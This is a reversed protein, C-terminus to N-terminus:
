REMEENVPPMGGGGGDGGGGGANNDSKKVLMRVLREYSMTQLVITGPGTLKTNFCGEGGCLCTLFGGVRQVDYEIGDTFGVVSDSDVILVEGPGLDKKILTGAANVFATGSGSVNQILPPMGGCCCAAANKAPLFKPMVKVTEDGAMFAGRKLNVSGGPINSLDFPVVIAFPMNPALGIYGLEGSTNKLRAKALGEGSFLRMGAFAATVTVTPSKYLMVGPEMHVSQQPQLAYNIVSYRTGSIAYGDPTAMRGLVQFDGSKTTYDVPISNVAGM